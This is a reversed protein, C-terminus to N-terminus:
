ENLRKRLNNLMIDLSWFNKIPINVVPEVDQWDGRDTRGGFSINDVFPIRFDTIMMADNTEVIFYSSGPLERAKMAKNLSVFIDPYDGWNINRRKYEFWALEANFIPLGKVCFDLHYSRPLKECQVGLDRFMQMIRRENRLDEKTEYIPRSKM